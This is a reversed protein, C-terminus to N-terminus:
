QAVSTALSNLQLGFESVTAGLTEGCVCVARAVSAESIDAVSWGFSAASSFTTSVAAAVASSPPASPVVLGLPESFGLVEEEGEEEELAPLFDTEVLALTVVPVLRPRTLTAEALDGELSGPFLRLLLLLLDGNAREWSSGGGGAARLRPLDGEGFAAEDDEEDDEEGDEEAADEEDTRERELDGDARLATLCDDEGDEKDEEADGAAVLFDEVVLDVVFTDEGEEGEGDEAMEALLLAAFPPEGPTRLFTAVTDARLASERVLSIHLASPQLDIAM